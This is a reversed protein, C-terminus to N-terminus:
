VDKNHKNSKNNDHMLNANVKLHISCLSTALKGCGKIHKRGSRRVVFFFFRLEILQWLFLLPFCCCARFVAVFGCFHLRWIAVHWWADICHLAVSVRAFLASAHWQLQVTCCCACLVAAAAAATRGRQTTKSVHRMQANTLLMKAHWSLHQVEARQASRHEQACMYTHTYKDM